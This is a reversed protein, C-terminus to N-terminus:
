ATSGMVAQQPMVRQLPMPQTFYFGQQRRIALSQLIAAMDPNEIGCAIVDVSLDRCSQLLGSLVAQYRERGAVAHVFKKSLKIGTVAHDALLPLGSIAQGFGDIYVRCGLERLSESLRGAHQPMMRFAQESIEFGIRDAPLTADRLLRLLASQFEDDRLSETSLNLSLFDSSQSPRSAFWELAHAIVWRDLRSSLSYSEAMPLIMSPLMMVSGQRMRVLVEYGIVRRSSVDVVPHKYLLIRNNDIAENLMRRTLGAQAQSWQTEAQEALANVCRNGGARKAEYCGQDARAILQELDEQTGNTVVRGVSLGIQCAQGGVSFQRSAAQEFVQEVFRSSAELSCNPMFVVFEDGGLRAVVDSERVCDSLIRSFAILVRDGVEHGARDNIQKFNDLDIYCMVHQSHPKSAAMKEVFDRNLGRRNNVGTLEDHTAEFFLRESRLKRETIDSFVGRYGALRDMRDYYPQAVVQVIRTKGDEQRVSAHTEVVLGENMQEVLESIQGSEFYREFFSLFSKGHYDILPLHLSTRKGSAVFRICMQADTEWFYDSMCRAFDRFRNVTDQLAEKRARLKGLLETMQHSLRDIHVQSLAPTSVTRAVNDVLAGLESETVVERATEILDRVTIDKQIVRDAGYHLALARDRESIFAASYLIVPIHRIEPNRKIRHCLSFGDFGPILIDSIIVDPKAFATMELATPGDSASLVREFHEALALEWLARLEDDDEVLLIKIDERSRESM